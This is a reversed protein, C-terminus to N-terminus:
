PRGQRLFVMEINDIAPAGPVITGPVYGQILVWRNYIAAAQAPTFQVTISFIAPNLDEQGTGPVHDARAQAGVARWQKGDWASVNIIEPFLAATGYLTTRGWIPARPESEAPGITETTGGAHQSTIRHLEFSMDRVSAVRDSQLPAALLLLAFTTLIPLSHRM